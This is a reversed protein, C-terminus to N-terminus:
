LLLSLSFCAFKFMSTDILSQAVAMVSIVFVHEICIHSSLFRMFDHIPFLIRMNYANTNYMPVLNNHVTANHQM